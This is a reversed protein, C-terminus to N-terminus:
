RQILVLVDGRKEFAFSPPALEAGLAAEPGGSPLGWGVRATPDRVELVVPTRYRQAAALALDVATGGGAEPGPGAQGPLAVRLVQWPGEVSVLQAEGRANHLVAELTQGRLQYTRLVPGEVGARVTALGHAARTTALVTEGDRVEITARAPAAQAGALGAAFTEGGGRLSALAGLIAAAAVGGIALSRWWGGLRAPSRRRQDFAERDVRASIREFLGFPEPAVDDRMAELSTLTDDFLRYESALLGDERFSRELARRMGADLSGERYQSFMERAKNANM